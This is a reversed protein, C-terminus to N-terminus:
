NGHIDYTGIIHARIYLIDTINIMSDGSLEASIAYVNEISYTGIIHARLYLVDTINVLGDSNVDGMLCVELTDKVDGGIELKVIMGTGILLGTDTIEVDLSSFIKIDAADQDLNTKFDAITTEDAVGLIMFNYQDITYVSSTIQPSALITVVCDDTFSGDETTVTITATGDLFATVKGNQDVRAKTEDSSSWTVNKNTANIPLVTAVLTQTDDIDLTITNEDLSVGTAPVLTIYDKHVYGDADGFNIKHWDPDVLLETIEIRAGGPLTGIIPNGTGAGSRVNLYDTVAVLANSNDVQVPDLATLTPQTISLSTETTGDYYFSLIQSYTHGDVARAQAGRQSMGVGHGYRRQYISFGNGEDEIVFLRLSSEHFVLDEPDVLGNAGDFYRLDLEIDSVSGLPTGDSTSVTFTGTAMVFDICNNTGSKPMRGHDESGGDTDHTHPALATVGTLKFQNINTIGDGDLQGSEIIQEKIYDVANKTNPDIPISYHKSPTVSNEEDALVYPFFIKEFLSESNNKDYTDEQISFPLNYGGGWVHYPIDTYGGNSAAYYTPVIDGDYQLVTKATADVAAESYENLADYGKYVQDASTDVVDYDGASINRAVYSRAAVAQVKLAETPWDNSMEHPVVGYLYDELYVHNITRIYSGSIDFAMNGLYGCSSHEQNDLWTFNNGVTEAHQVFTITSGSYLETEGYYLKLLAGDKRVEYLQRQLVVGASEAISYNGDVYVPITTANGMSLKVRVIAPVAVQSTTTVTVECTDPFSGDVTTVTITATGNDVATVLGNSAVIAVSEDDSSWTVNKNSANAPSITPVLTDSYGKELALTSRDLSIGSVAIPDVTVTCTDTFSGDETTATITATGVSVATVTGASVTAINEDSTSWSVNKNTANSPAITAVLTDNGGDPISLTSHDLSVGTVSVPDVTVTCTDTFSGDETTVTITASGEAIGTVLGSTSVTAINTDDSEWTVNQNAADGPAVTAILTETDEMEITTSSKNLSVGTVSVPTVNVTSTDEFSGDVTTVTITTSGLSVGTVVGSSSVTAIGTNGSAWTVNKNTADAPAITENLTGTYGLEVDITESDLTVKYPRDAAYLVALHANVRGNAFIDDGLDDATEYLIAKVEAVTLTPDASLILACVGAVVPSAMSTGSWNKYGNNLFTSVIGVGPASIDKLPGYNSSNAKVNNVDISIVSIASDYDSPYHPQFNPSGDSLNDNGAACVVVVGNTIAYDVAEKQTQDFDPHIYAPNIYSGLSMNIINAGSNIAFHIGEIITDTYALGDDRFVDVVILKSDPAVGAGMIGNNENALIIGSVHTGHGHDDEANGDDNATDAQAVVQGIFESHDLDLGTDLVAVIIGSGTATDWAEYTNIADHQWQYLSNQDDLYPDNFTAELNYIYNPQAYEIENSANMETLFEELTKDKPIKIKITDKLSLSEYGTGVADLTNSKKETSRNPKFKIIIEEGSCPKGNYKTVKVNDDKAFVTNDIPPLFSICLLLVLFVVIIKRFIYKNNINNIKKNM